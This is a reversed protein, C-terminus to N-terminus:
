HAGSLTITCTGDANQVARFGLGAKVLHAIALMMDPITALTISM